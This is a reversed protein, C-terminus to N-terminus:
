LNKMNGRCSVRLNRSADCLDNLVDMVVTSWRKMCDSGLLIGAIDAVCFKVAWVQTPNGHNIFADFDMQDRLFFLGNSGSEYFLPGHADTRGDTQRNTRPFQALCCRFYFMKIASKLGWGALLLMIRTARYGQSASHFEPSSPSLKAEQGFFRDHQQDFEQSAFPKVMKAPNLMTDCLCPGKGVELVRGLVVINPFTTEARVDRLRRSCYLWVLKQARLVLCFLFFFFPFATVFGRAARVSLM